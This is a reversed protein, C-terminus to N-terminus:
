SGSYNNDNNDNDVNKHNDNITFLLLLVSNSYNISGNSKISILTGVIYKNRIYLAWNAPATSYVSQM